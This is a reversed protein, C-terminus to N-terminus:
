KRSSAKSILKAGEFALDFSSKMAEAIEASEILIGSEAQRFIYSVTNDYIAMDCTFGFKEPPILVSIDSKPQHKGMERSAADDPHIGLMRIGLRARKEFYEPLYERFFDQMHQASSYVRILKEKTTLTDEVQTIVGPKGEFVRVRPKQKTGSYLSKLDPMIAAIGLRASAREQEAREALRLLKEPPAVVYEKKPMGVSVSVLGKEELSGLVVYCSSRNIKAAKAIEQATGVELELLAIYVCAEKESLGFKMLEDIHM